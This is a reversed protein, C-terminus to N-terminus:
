HGTGLFAFLFVGRIKRVIRLICVDFHFVDSHSSDKRRRAFADRYRLTVHLDFFIASPLLDTVFVPAGFIGTNNTAHKSKWCLLFVVDSGVLLLFKEFPQNGEQVELICHM